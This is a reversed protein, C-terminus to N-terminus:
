KKNIRDLAWKAHDSVTESPHQKRETLISVYAQNGSCGAILCAQALVRNTISLNAGIINRLDNAAAKPNVLINKVDVSPHTVGTPSPNNPCLRQCEDCGILRNGMKERIVTPIPAGSLQWNRLCRERHFVGGELANTPCAAECIRCDGCQLEHTEDELHVTATLGPTVTMIQVHFRSGTEDHYSLTNKGQKFEPLRAFIPKVRIDDRLRVGSEAYTRSIEVAAEYAQQSAYYYPHIWAGDEAPLVEVEYKWLALLVSGIDSYGCEEADLVIVRYFGANKLANILTM